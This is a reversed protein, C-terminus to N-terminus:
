KIKVEFVINEYIELDNKLTELWHISLGSIRSFSKVIYLRFLVENSFTCYDRHACRDPLWDTIPIDNNGLFARILAITLFIYVTINSLIQDTEEVGVKAGGGLIKTRDM